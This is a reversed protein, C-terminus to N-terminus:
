RVAERDTEDTAEGAGRGRRARLMAGACAGLGVLALAWEPAAGVRDAITLQDRLPVREEVAAATALGTAAVVKGDPAIVGSIGSTAAIMVSRGTEIARLRSMAFQQDPQDTREYTANNTQVVLVRGGKAVSDHVIGDYAVEFCIVDGIRAPGVSLIGTRDGPKFDRAVRQLRTIYKSLISRFPVYEGFPVPHQKTYHAGPGTRPDWVIGENYVHQEDASVLAGVLVPVGATKVAQDILAYTEPDAFPDEDSSNEPWIVLQPRPAKGQAVEAMLQDTVRVHNELVQLPRGLFDMGAHPVNGQILAVEAYAPGKASAQGTTPLPVAYGAAGSAVAGALLAAPVAWPGSRRVAGYAALAAAALLTGSLAVAFTVLPAGGLAALPTFPSSTNAFALRGWPFGGLPVRDRVWEQTVWLCASWLPWWRLRSVLALGAAMLALYLAEVVSLVSWADWGIVNLWFLLWLMFPLGFAFGTWAAQRAGRGRTLLSLGAVALVSLPWVGYPPFALALLSGLAAAAATRPLGCRVRRLLRGGRGGAAPAGPAAPATESGPASGAPKLPLAV